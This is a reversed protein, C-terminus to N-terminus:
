KKDLIDIIELITAMWNIEANAVISNRYQRDALCMLISGVKDDKLGFKNDAFIEFFNTYLEDYIFSEEKCIKRIGKWDKKFLLELMKEMIDSGFEKVVLKNNSSFKEITNIAARIDPYTNIVVQKLDKETYVIGETNLILKLRELIQEKSFSKFEFEQCRSRIAEIIKQKYNCTLIFRTYASTTEMLNRLASQFDQTLGDSEDLIVVRLDDDGAFYSFQQVKDRLTAIGREESANIYMYTCPIQKVLIKAMTTKGSGPKGCLLLHPFAKKDIFEQFKLKMDDSCIFGGLITPRYKEVFLGKM